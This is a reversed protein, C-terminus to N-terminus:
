AIKKPKSFNELYNIDENNEKQNKLITKIKETMKKNLLVTKAGRHLPRPYIGIDVWAYGSSEGNLQPVFEEYVTLVYSNYEFNKDRSVYKHLPYVKGVDPIIGIEENLERLLTEFPTENQEQKGGWFSWTGSYTSNDSRLQLCVRGTDIALFLCGSASIM